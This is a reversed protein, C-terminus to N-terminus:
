YIRTLAQETMGLVGCSHLHRGLCPLPCIVHWGHAVVGLEMQRLRTGPCCYSPQITSNVCWVDFMLHEAVLRKWQERLHLRCVAGALCFPQTLKYLM